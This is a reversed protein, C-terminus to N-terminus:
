TAWHLRDLVAIRTGVPDYYSRYFEEIRVDVQVYSGVLGSADAFRGQPLRVKDRLPLTIVVARETPELVLTIRSKDAHIAKVCGIYTGYTLDVRDVPQQSGIQRQAVTRRPAEVVGRTRPSGVGPRIAQAQSAAPFQVLLLFLGWRVATGCKM